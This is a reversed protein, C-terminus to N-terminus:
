RLISELYSGAFYALASAAAGLLLTKTGSAVASELAWKSKYSGVAFFAVGALVVAINFPNQLELLYPLLPVFGLLVFAFFTMMGSKLPSRQSNSLGYEEQLMIRVWEHENKAISSVIEELIPGEFGKLRFIQRIEELEGEPRHKIQRREYDAIKEKEDVESKTGLYNSAAMSFGDALVNAVGLIIITKTSMGAGVVGAIIAFTTVIGDIAGYVFDRLYSQHKTALLRETIAESDHNHQLRKEM